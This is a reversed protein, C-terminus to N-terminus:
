HDTLYPMRSAVGSALPATLYPLATMFSLCRDGL